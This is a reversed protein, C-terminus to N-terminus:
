WIKPCLLFPTAEAMMLAFERRHRKVVFVPDHNILSLASQDHPRQCIGQGVVTAGTIKSM